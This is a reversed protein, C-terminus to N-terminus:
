RMYIKLLVQRRESLEVNEQNKNSINLRGKIKCHITQDYKGRFTELYLIFKRDGSKIIFQLWFGTELLKTCLLGASKFLVCLPCVALSDKILLIYNVLHCTYRIKSCHQQIKIDM